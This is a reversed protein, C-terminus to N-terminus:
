KGASKARQKLVNGHKTLIEGMQELMERNMQQRLEPTMQGKTAGYKQMMEGTLSMIDGHISMMTGMIEPSGMMPGMMGMGGGMPGMMGMGPGMRGHDGMHGMHHRGMHGEGMMHRGECPHQTEQQAVTYGVLGLVLTMALIAILGKRMTIM